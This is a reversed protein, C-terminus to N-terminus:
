IEQILSILHYNGKESQSIESLMIGKLEMWMSAFPLIKHKKSLQMFNWQIYTYTHTHTHTRVCVCVCVCECVYWMKKVWEDTSPCRPEKWLKAITSMAAIFIPCTGRRIMVSTDKPYIGLLAIAPDYPLEIKM